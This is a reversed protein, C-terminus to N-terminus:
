VTSQATVKLLFEGFSRLGKRFINEKAPSAKKGGLSLAYHRARESEFALIASDVPLTHYHMEFGCHCCHSVGGHLREGCVPCQTSNTKM